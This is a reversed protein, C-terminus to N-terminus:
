TTPEKEQILEAMARGRQYQTSWQDADPREHPRPPANLFGRKWESRAAPTCYPNKDAQWTQGTEDIHTILHKKHDEAAAKRAWEALEAPSNFRSMHHSGENSADV